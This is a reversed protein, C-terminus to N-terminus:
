RTTVNRGLAVLLEGHLKGLDKTLMAAPVLAAAAADHRRLARAVPLSVYAAGAALVPGRLGAALGAAAGVYAVARAIDRTWFVPRGGHAAGYGYNRYMRLTARLDPRQVWSVEAHRTAACRHGEAVRLGFVGDEVWPLEAPFGGVDLFVERRVALSRAFPTEPAFGLGLVATYVRALKGRRVLEEPDPYCAVAQARELATRAAVRPVGAVLGVPDAEAFPARLGELWGPALACGADSFAVVPNRARAVGANRGASINTGPATVVIVEDREVALAALVTATGDTSGGDVVVLEDGARLQETVEAVLAAVGDVEDLVTAVVSVAPGDTRGAGPRNCAEALAAVPDAAPPADARVTDELLVVHWGGARLVAAARRGSRSGPVVVVDPSCRAVDRRLAGLGGGAGVEHLVARDGAAARLAVVGPHDSGARVDVAVQLPASVAPAGAVASGGTPGARWAALSRRAGSSAASAALKVAIAGGVASRVVLSADAGDHKAYFLWMARHFERNVAWGRARGSSGAKVHLVTAGPWYSVDWGADTFRKCWDLDEGYMWFREDLAGVEELAEGRVLMFAGNVAGVVAPEDYDPSGGLYGSPAVGPVWRHLKLLYSLSSAPTPIERRCAHDISGDTQVLKPGLVGTRPSRALEDLCAQLAGPPLETDPNLLLVDGSAHELAQNCARGFGVNDTNAVVTVGPHAVRVADVTGDRSDNDVVVVDLERDVHQALLSRLCVLALDRCRYTVVVVTLPRTACVGGADPTATAPRSM